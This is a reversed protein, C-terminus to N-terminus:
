LVGCLALTYYYMGKVQTEGLNERSYEAELSLTVFKGILDSVSCGASSTRKKMKSIFNNIMSAQDKKTELVNEPLGGTRLSHQTKKPPLVNRAYCQTNNMPHPDSGDVGRGLGYAAFDLHM